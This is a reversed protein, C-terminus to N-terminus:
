VSTSNGPSSTASSQLAPLTCVMALLTKHRRYRQIREALMAPLDETPVYGSAQYFGRLGPDCFLWIPEPYHHAVETLLRSGIGKGRCDTAVCLGTLWWGREVKLLNAAAIVEASRVAWCDAGAVSRMGSRQAKYFKDLLPRQASTLREIRLTESM